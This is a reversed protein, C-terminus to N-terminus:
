WRACMCIPPSYRTNIYRCVCVCSLVRICSNMGPLLRAAADQQASDMDEAKRGGAATYKYTHIDTHIYTYIMYIMTLIDHMNDSDMDEAKHGGAATHTHTHTHTHIYSHICMMCINLIWIMYSVQFICVYARAHM